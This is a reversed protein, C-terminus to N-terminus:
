ADNNDLPVQDQPVENPALTQINMRINKKQIDNYTNEKLKRGRKEHM